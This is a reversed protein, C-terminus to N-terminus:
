LQEEELNWMEQYPMDKPYKSHKIAMLVQSNIATIRELEPTNARAYTINVESVKGTGRVFKLAMEEGKEITACVNSSMVIGDKYVIWHWITESNLLFSVNIM